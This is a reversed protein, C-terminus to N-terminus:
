KRFLKDYRLPNEALSLRSLMVYISAWGESSSEEDESPNGPLGRERGITVFGTSGLQHPRTKQSVMCRKRSGSGSLRSLFLPQEM